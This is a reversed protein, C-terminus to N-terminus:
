AQTGSHSAARAAAKLAFHESVLLIVMPLILLVPVVALAAGDKSMSAAAVVAYIMIGLNALWILGAIVPWVLLAREKPWWNDWGGPGGHVPVRAGAPLTQWAHRTLVVIWLLLLGSVVAFGIAVPMLTV